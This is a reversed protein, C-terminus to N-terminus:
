SKKAQAAGQVLDDLFALARRKQFEDQLTSPAQDGLGPEACFLGKWPGAHGNTESPIGAGIEPWEPALMEACLDPM